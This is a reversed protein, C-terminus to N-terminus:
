LRCLRLYNSGIKANEWRKPYVDERGRFLKRFLMIKEKNSFYQNVSAPIGKPMDKRNQKILANRKHVLREREDDIAKIRENITITQKEIGKVM